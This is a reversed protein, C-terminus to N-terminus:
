FKKNKLKQSEEEIQKQKEEELEAKWKLYDYFKKVPMAMVQVYAQHSLEMCAYVDLSSSKRYIEVADDKSDSRGM